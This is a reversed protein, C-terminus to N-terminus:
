NHFYHRFVTSAMDEAVGQIDFITVQDLFESQLANTAM